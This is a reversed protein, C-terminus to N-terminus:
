LDQIEKKYLHIWIELKTFRTLFDQAAMEGRFESWDQDQGEYQVMGQVFAFVVLISIMVELIYSLGKRKVM